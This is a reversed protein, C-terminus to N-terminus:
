NMLKKLNRYKKLVEMEEYPLPKVYVTNGYGDIEVRLFVLEDIINHAPMIAIYEQGEVDFRADVMYNSPEGFENFVALTEPM